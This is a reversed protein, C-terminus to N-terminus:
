NFEQFQVRLVGQKLQIYRLTCELNPNVEKLMAKIDHGFLKGKNNRCYAELEESTGSEVDKM